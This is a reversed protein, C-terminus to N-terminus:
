IRHADQKASGQAECQIQLVSLRWGSKWTLAGLYRHPSSCYCSQCLKPVASPTLHSFSLLFLLVVENKCMEKTESPLNQQRGQQLALPPCCCRAWSGEQTVAAAAPQLPAHHAPQILSRAQLLSCFNVNTLAFYLLMPDSFVPHQWILVMAGLRIPLLTM